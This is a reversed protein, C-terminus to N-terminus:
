PNRKRSVLTIEKIKSSDDYQFMMNNCWMDGHNLVNFKAPDPKTIRLMADFMDM